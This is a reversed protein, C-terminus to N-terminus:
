GDFEFVHLVFVVGGPILIFLTTFGIILHQLIAYAIHTHEM